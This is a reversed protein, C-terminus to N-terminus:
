VNIENELHLFLPRPTYCQIHLMEYSPREGHSFLKPGIGDLGIAKSVDLTSLYKFVFNDDIEPFEFVM